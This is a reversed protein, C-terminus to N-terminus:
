SSVDVTHITFRLRDQYTGSHDIDDHSAIDFSVPISIFDEAKAIQCIVQNLDADDMYFHFNQPESNDPRTFTMNYLIGVTDTLAVDDKHLEMVWRHESKVHVEVAKGYDLRVNSVNVYSLMTNELNTFVITDPITVTYVSSPVNYSVYTSREQGEGFTTYTTTAYEEAASSVGAMSLILFLALGFVIVKKM